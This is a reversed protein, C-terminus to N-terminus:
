ASLDITQEIWGTAQYKGNNTVENLVGGAGSARGAHRYKWCTTLTSQNSALGNPNISMPPPATVNDSPFALPISVITPQYIRNGVQSKSMGPTLMPILLCCSM